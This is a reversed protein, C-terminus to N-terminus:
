QSIALVEFIIAAPRVCCRLRVRLHAPLGNLSLDPIASGTHRKQPSFKFCTNASRLTDGIELL